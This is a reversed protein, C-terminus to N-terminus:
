PVSSCPVVILKNGASHYFPTLLILPLHFIGHLLGTLLV